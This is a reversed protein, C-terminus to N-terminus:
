PETAIVQVAGTNFRICLQTKGAGNDVLYLRGRNAGPADPASSQETMELYTTGYVMRTAGGIDIKGTETALTM